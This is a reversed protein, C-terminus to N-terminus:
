IDAAMSSNILHPPNQDPLILNQSLIYTFFENDNDIM